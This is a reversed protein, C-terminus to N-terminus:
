LEDPDVVLDDESLELLESEEDDDLFIDDDDDDDDLPGDMVHFGQM